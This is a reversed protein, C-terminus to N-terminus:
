PFPSRMEITREAAKTAPIFRLPADQGDIRGLYTGPRTAYGETVQEAPQDGISVELEGHSELAGYSNPDGALDGAYVAGGIRLMRRTRSKQFDVLTEGDKDQLRLYPGGEGSSSYWYVNMGTRGGTNTPLPRKAEALGPSRFRVMYDYEALMPHIRRELFVLRYSPDPLPIACEVWSQKSPDFQKIERMLERDFLYTAIERRFVLAGLVCGTVLGVAAIAISTRRNM